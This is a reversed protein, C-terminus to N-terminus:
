ISSSKQAAGRAVAWTARPGFGGRIGMGKGRCLENGHEAMGMGQKAKGM